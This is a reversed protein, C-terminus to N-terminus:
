VENWGYVSPEYVNYDITSIWHKNNHSVKDNIRYADESGLPQVWEPFEDISVETYLAKTVDPTWDAQSTHSQIVKYLKDIYCIRDGTVYAKNAEWRPFLEVGSLADEDSLSLSAKVILERLKLAHQRTIM